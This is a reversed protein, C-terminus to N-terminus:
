PGVTDRLLPKASFMEFLVGARELAARLFAVYTEGHYAVGEIADLM